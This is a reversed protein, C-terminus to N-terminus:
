GPGTARREDRFKRGFEPGSRRVLLEAFGDMERTVRSSRVGEAGALASTAIAIGEDPAGGFVALSALKTLALLRSRRYQPARQAYAATLRERADGARHGHEALMVLAAGTDSNHQALTYFREWRSAPQAAREFADDAVGIARRAEAARNMGALPVALAAYLNAREVPLLKGTQTLAHEVFTHAQEFRGLWVAQRAMSQLVYARFKGDGSERSCRLALDFFRDAVGHECTDFAMFACTHALEAVAAHLEVRVRERCPVRLLQEAWRMQALAAERLSWGGYQHHWRVFMTAASRTEAVHREDVMAPIVTQWAAEPSPGVSSLQGPVASRRSSRFGLKTEDDVHLISCFAKRYREGPWRIVGRELKGIYSDDIEVRMGFHLWLHDNVLEAM